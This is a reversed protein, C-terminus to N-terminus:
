PVVRDVNPQECTTRPERSEANAVLREYRQDHVNYASQNESLRMVIMACPSIIGLVGVTTVRVSVPVIQIKLRRTDVNKGVGCGGHKGDESQAASPHKAPRPQIRNYTNSSGDKHSSPCPPQYDIRAFDQQITFHIMRDYSVNPLDNLGSRLVTSCSNRVQVDPPDSLPGIRAREGNHAVIRRQIGVGDSPAERTMVLDHVRGDLHM